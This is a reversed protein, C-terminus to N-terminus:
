GFSAVSMELMLVFMEKAASYLIDEILDINDSVSSLLKAQSTDGVQCVCGDVTFSRIVSVANDMYEELTANDSVSDYFDNVTFIIDFVDYEGVTFVTLGVVHGLRLSTKFEKVDEMGLCSTIKSSTVKKLISMDRNINKIKANKLEQFTVKDM